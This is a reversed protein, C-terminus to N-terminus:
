PNIATIGMQLNADLMLFDFIDIAGDGNLDTAYYGSLGLYIDTELPLYDFVDITLDQNIDGSYLGFINIGLNTQNNGFAASASTTFDYNNVAGFTVPTASWIRLSNRHIVVIYYANGVVSPPYSCTITGDTHLYGTYTHLMAYPSSIAHLEVTVEDTIGSTPNPDVGENYLTNTMQGAGIYYGELYLKLDLTSNCAIASVTTNDSASCGNIDTYNYTLTFNGMSSPTFTNGSVASGSFTGGLPSGTLTISSGVCVNAYNGADVLPLANVGVTITNSLASSSTACVANSTLECKVVDNNNLSSSSYTITNGGVPNGNVKWQYSPTTGGNVPTATFTLNTGACSPNSGSTLAISVSPTVAPTVAMTITNSTVSSVPYVQLTFNPRRTTATGTAQTCVTTTAGQVQYYTASNGTTTSYTNRYAITGTVQSAFCIEVLVNSTGNWYFPTTFNLTNVSSVVPTYNVPGYVTTFGTAQFTSTSNALATTAMKVTYNTLTSPNGVTSSNVNVGISTINGATFGASTLEAARLLYQQRGNGQATPFFAGNNSNSANITTGTGLTAISACGSTSSLQCTVVDNNNLTNSSFTAANTGVNSGNVKWQYVLNNGPNTVSANFTVMNGYCITTASSSISLTPTSTTNVVMTVANSTVSSPTACAASSTMNCTVVDGNVLTANAYTAANTGVTNGNLKWTYVPTGGNIPTATFTVNTGACITTASAAISVSPVLIPNVTITINNSTATGITACLANSTLICNIVDGNVLTSNTYTSSNTGVNSGNLKWQYSPTTGGNVPTATFTVSTGSCITTASATISVSPTVVPNVTMTITNSTSTTPTACVISSTMTCTVQDNNSLTSSTFTSSNTGVNSGNVKWQYVPTGGNVPTATFTVATGGCITTATSSISVSATVNGGSIMTIANSTATTLAAAVLIMNPRSTTTTGSASTCAGAGATGDVQYFTSGTFTATHILNGYAATGTVSNSFCIDVLVNSTGDWTFPTTFNMTNVSNVIPTYNAAPRVTTFTPNQFTTTLVTATTNAMKITYGNLTAPNGVQSNLTVGISTILGASLGLATLETARILYQQRGNGYYTPFFAGADSTSGNYATGTGLTATLPCTSSGTLTCTVVDNPLLTTSTFTSSNTGVNAGNVNWQYSPFSGANTTTATFTVSPTGCLITTSATISITPSPSGNVVMTINNSTATTSTACTSNSTLVCSIVDSNALTNTSYTASNSGVNSGNKKWQYVPTTGGNTISATFTVQTGACVNNASATIAITPATPTNVTMTIANSTAPNGLVGALNSTMVCTVVDSSVLTTTTFTASNTGVNTGNVKWQYSPSTGGNVPNATFTVSSGTCSPNSGTTQTISVLATNAPILQWSFIQTRAVSSGSTGGFYEGTHWFTIGDPDLCTHSYDGIRNTGTQFGTGSAVVTEAVPFTGLPDSSTRGTYCLSPYISTADSKLYAIGISGNDDMAISGMWRTAADPTYIGQQYMSWVGTSPNQRLECWMISRQSANIYVGWNLVVTNYGGWPKFQARYMLVGGIGDLKQTSGPQPCDNWSANYQGDFTSTPVQGGSVITGTPTTPTWNVSFNYINIADINTGGWGNDSYSFIPCPGTSPLTGDAADGALPCFFGSGQPPNFSVYLSKATPTGALMASREFAFVKQTQNSTMYYGDHWVSFKLYDPFEPSVYTYTYYTGTPDGTTSVAIYIKKDTQSGFQALFWRNAAKDYMVIPDGSNGTAPSWLNGLTGTLMVTGTTKNFIRFTTSNIMQVYHNPGVAGSPDYPRFGSATQGPWNTIPAKAPITGMATQMIAPDNGYQPGDKPGYIFKQPKRHEERDDSELKEHKFTNPDFDKFIESLPKSIGFQSCPIYHSKSNLDQQAQASLVAMCLVIFYLIKKM